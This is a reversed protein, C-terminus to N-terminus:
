CPHNGYAASCKRCNYSATMIDGNGFKDLSETKLVPRTYPKKASKKNDFDNNKGM